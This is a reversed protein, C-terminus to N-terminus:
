GSTLIFEFTKGVSVNQSGSRAYVVGPQGQWWGVAGSEFDAQSELRALVEGNLLVTQVVEQPDLFLQLVNDREPTSGAYDGQSGSIIVRVGAQDRKQQLVTERIEGALYATTRGDDEFLTFQSPTRDAYVRLILEDRVSGDLRRGLANMTQDDVHMMPLIAGARVFTPLRFLGNQEVPFPGFWSGESQYRAGTHYDVWEGGPLYVGRDNRGPYAATAVLIDKGILKHDALKRTAPDAQDYFALPPFVPEGFRYARHALSYLYPILEYRQRVNALNSELHGVRDPATEYENYINHTHPRGPIDFAMGQAFWITYLEYPDEPRERFGGIDAGYYDIGSFSMQMQANIHAALSTLRSAIDGSWLAAGYRQSGPAGSRSLIFPRETRNNRQYGDYISRTWLLNYLNHVSWHDHLVQEDIPIGAYWASESYQQPEGLDTWHGVIGLDILPERKWDHWFAAGEQHTWDIMGGKGWWPDQDLYLSSCNECSRVLYGESDMQAHEYLNKGIFSQEILLLGIGHDQSLSLIKQRPEPFNQLDWVLSGERTDDSGTEIGGFWQLDLAFGDIPFRNARLSELKSEMEEWNDYGYESVWLGFMKKPPLPPRGVLEMYDGRLDPLDRGSMLYFRLSEGHTSITWTKKTFDWSQPQQHDVFLAYNDMGQGLFYAIPFQTNGVYGEDFPELVNGAPQIRKRNFWNGNTVGPEIFQQGLGYIDSFGESTLSIGTMQSAIYRPCIETLPLEAERVIESLSICLTVQNVEVRLEPTEFVGQGDSFLASPGQYDTKAVMPSSSIRGSEPIPNETDSLEFHVLDDDLFEIRLIRSGSKFSVQNLELPTLGRIPEGWIPDPTTFIGREAVARSPLGGRHEDEEASRLVLLTLFAALSLVALLGM